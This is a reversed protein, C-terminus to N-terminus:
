KLIKYGNTNRLSRYKIKLSILDWSLLSIFPINTEYNLQTVWGFRYFIYDTIIPKFIRNQDM